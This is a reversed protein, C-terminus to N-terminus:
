GRRGRGGALAASSFSTVNRSLASRTVGTLRPLTREAASAASDSRPKAIRRQELASRKRFRPRSGFDAATPVSRDRAIPVGTGKLGRGGGPPYSGHLM